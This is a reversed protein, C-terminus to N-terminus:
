AFSAFIIVKFYESYMKLRLHEMAIVADRFSATKPFHSFLRLADVM